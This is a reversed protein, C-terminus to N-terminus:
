EKCECMKSIIDTTSISPIKEFFGVECHSAGIVEKNVYDSGVIMKDALKSILSELEYEDDFVVVNDIWQIAMLMEKRYNQHNIPRSSGKLHRVRQDSDIGVTLSTGLSRAYEFLRIHGVHLIDFCGNTWIRKM